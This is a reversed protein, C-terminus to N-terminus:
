NPLVPREPLPEGRRYLWWWGEHASLYVRRTAGKFLERAPDTAARVVYYDYDDQEKTMDFMWPQWDIIAEVSKSKDRFVAVSLLTYAFSYSDTGGKEVQYWAPFHMFPVGGPTYDGGREFVLSRIRKNPEMKGIVVDFQRADRDFGYFGVLIVLMWGAAIATLAFHLVRPAVRPRGRETALMAFPVLLTALRPYLFAVNNYDQPVGLYAAAWLGLPVLRQRAKALRVGSAVFLLMLLLGVLLSPTDHPYGLLLAPAEILRDLGYRYVNPVSARGKQYRSMWLLAALAGVALPSLRVVASRLDKSSFGILAAASLGCLVFVILHAGFLLVTFAALLVARRPSFAKTYTVVFALYLVGIPLAVIYSFFGWLFSYGFALPFGALSWWRDGGAADLLRWLSWPLGIVTLTVVVKMAAWVPLVVAFLRAIGYGLLYPTFYQLEFAERFGFSPDDYHKWISIQAAHQPMDAMPLYKPIWLVCLAILSCSLFAAFFSRDAVDNAPEAQM